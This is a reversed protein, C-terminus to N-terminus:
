EMLRPRKYARTIPTPVCMTVRSEIEKEKKKKKGKGKERPIFLATYTHNKKGSSLAVTLQSSICFCGGGRPSRITNVVHIDCYLQPRGSDFSSKLRLGYSLPTHTHTQGLSSGSCGRIRSNTRYEYEVRIGSVAYWVQGMLGLGNLFFFVGATYSYLSTLGIYTHPAARPPPNKKSCTSYTNCTSLIM